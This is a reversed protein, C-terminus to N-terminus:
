RRQGRPRTGRDPPRGRGPGLPQDADDQQQAGARHRGPLVVAHHRELNAYVGMDSSATSTPATTPTTRGRGVGDHVRHLHQRGPGPHGFGNSGMESQTTGAPTQVQVFYTSATPNTITYLTNWRDQTGGCGGPTYTTTRWCTPPAPTSRPTTGCRSPPTSRRGVAPATARSRDTATPRTTCSSPWRAASRGLSSSPTSTATPPTTPTPSPTAVPARRGAATARRTRGAPTTPTPRAHRHPRGAGEVLLRREHGALLEGPQRGDATDGTGLFNKPSGMPVPARVRRDVLPHHRRQQHVIGTFFQDASNDTITSRSSPTAAASRPSTSPSATPETPSATPRPSRRPSPHHRCRRRPPLRRRRPRRRRRGAPHRRGPRVLRRPRGRAGTVALLPLLLLATLVLVYGEEGKSTADGPGPSAPDPSAM